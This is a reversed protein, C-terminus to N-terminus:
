KTTEVKGEHAQLGKGSSSSQFAMTHCMTYTSNANEALKAGTEKHYLHLSLKKHVKDLLVIIAAFHGQALVVTSHVSQTTTKDV